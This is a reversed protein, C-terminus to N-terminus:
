LGVKNSCILWHSYKKDQIMKRTLTLQILPDNIINEIEAFEMNGILGYKQGQELFTQAQFQFLGYSYKKNSDLIKIEPRISSECYALDALVKDPCTSDLRCDQLYQVVANPDYLQVPLVPASAVAPAHILFSLAASVLFKRFTM